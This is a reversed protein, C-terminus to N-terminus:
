KKGRMFGPVKGAIKDAAAREKGARKRSKATLAERQRAIAETVKPPLFLQVSTESDVYVIFTTDGQERQRLTWVIFTQAAGILPTYLSITSPKTASVDPLEALSGLMRDFKSPSKYNQEVINERPM